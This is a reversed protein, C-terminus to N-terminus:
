LGSVGSSTMLSLWWSSACVPGILVGLCSSTAPNRENTTGIKAMMPRTSYTEDLLLGAGALGGLAATIVEARLLRRPLALLEQKFGLVSGAYGPMVAVASTANAVIPPIGVAVLAPFTLFSGGGAVANLAGAGLAAVLLLAM